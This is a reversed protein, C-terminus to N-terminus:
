AVRCRARCIRCHNMGQVASNVFLRLFSSCANKLWEIAVQGHFALLLGGEATPDLSPPVCFTCRWHSELQCASLHTWVKAHERLAQQQHVKKIAPKLLLDQQCGPLGVALGPTAHSAGAALYVEMGNSKPTPPSPVLWPPAPRHPKILHIGRACRADPM